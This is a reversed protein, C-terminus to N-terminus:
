ENGNQDHVPHSSIDPMIGKKYIKWMDEHAKYAKQRHEDAKGKVAQSLSEYERAFLVSTTTLEQARERHKEREQMKGFYKQHDYKGGPMAGHTLGYKKTLRRSSSRIRSKQLMGQYKERLHPSSRMNAYRNKMKELGGFYSPDSGVKKLQYRERRKAQVRKNRESTDKLPPSSSVNQLVFISLLIIKLAIRLMKVATHTHKDGDVCLLFALFQLIKVLCFNSVQVAM